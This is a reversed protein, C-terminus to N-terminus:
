TGLYFASCGAYLEPLDEDNFEDYHELNYQALNHVGDQQPEEGLINELTGYAWLYFHTWLGNQFDSEEYCWGNYQCAMSAHVKANNSMSQIEGKFGGSYCCELFIFIRNSDSEELISALEDDHIEGDEWSRFWANYGNRSGHGSFVVAIIDDSDAIGALWELSSEINSETALGFYSTYDSTDDGLVRITNFGETYKLRSYWDNANDDAYQLDQIGTTDDYDSIGVIVAYRKTQTASVYSVQFTVIIIITLFLIAKNKKNRL